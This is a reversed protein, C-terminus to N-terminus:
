RRPQPYGLYSGTGGNILNRVAFPTMIVGVTYFHVYLLAGGSQKLRKPKHSM